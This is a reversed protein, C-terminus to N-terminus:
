IYGHVDSLLSSMVAPATLLPDYITFFHSHGSITRTHVSQKASCLAHRPLIEVLHPLMNQLWISLKTVASLDFNGLFEVCGERM